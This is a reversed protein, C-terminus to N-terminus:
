EFDRDEYKYNIMFPTGEGHEKIARLNLLNRMATIPSNTPNKMIRPHFDYPGDKIRVEGSETVYTSVHGHVKLDDIYPFPTAIKSGGVELIDLVNGDVSIATGNGNQYLWMAEEYTLHHNKGAHGVRLVEQMRIEFEEDSEIKYSDKSAVKSAESGIGIVVMLDISHGGPLIIPMPPTDYSNNQSVSPTKAKEAAEGEEQAAGSSENGDSSPRQSEQWERIVKGRQKFFNVGGGQETAATYGTPDTYSLPNNFVYSYRNLSQGNEPAQVIPDAQAFRATEPDYIRGNMHIINAHDVHEHGTFGRETVKSILKVSPSAFVNQIPSWTAGDRRKGFADFSLKHKLRGEDDSIFNISGLHDKHLYDVSHANNSRM